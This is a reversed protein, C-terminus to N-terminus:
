FLDWEVTQGLEPAQTAVIENKKLGGILLKQISTIYFM